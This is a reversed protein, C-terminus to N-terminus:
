RNASTCTPRAADGLGLTGAELDFARREIEFSGGIGDLAVYDLARLCGGPGLHLVQAEFDLDADGIFAGLGTAGTSGVVLTITDRVLSGQREHRHGAVVLPVAGAADRALVPDHVALVHAGEARARRATEGALAEKVARAEDASTRDDATFSPDPVGLIRVGGVEVVGDVVEVNDVGALATRNAPSDHNGPVFLYRAPVDAVARGIEAEVPLGFSTLDGTDLVAHVDFQRALEQVVELGLPNLHLDSVHLIRVEGPRGARGPDAAAVAYLDSVQAALTGVRARVTGFDDVHRQASEVMEPARELAGAYVPESFARADFGRWTVTLLLGVAVVGGLGGVVILLPRVRSVLAGVVAGILAAGLLARVAFKWALSRLDSEAQAYLTDTPRDEAILTELRDIDVEDIRGHLGLPAAHTQASLSGLPPVQLRTEGDLRWSAKVELTGPGVDGRTPPAFTLSAVAAVAGVVFVLLAALLRAHRSRTVLDRIRSRGDGGGDSDVRDRDGM